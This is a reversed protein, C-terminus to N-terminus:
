IHVICFGSRRVYLQNRVVNYTGDVDRMCSLVRATANTVRLEEIERFL